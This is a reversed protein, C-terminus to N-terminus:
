YGDLHLLRAANEYLILNREEDSLSLKDFYEMEISADWMPYDTGWIVRDVGYRRIIDVAQEPTLDRLTSCCDVYLNPIGALTNVAEEYKSWGGFHAGIVTLEPHKMLFAKMQPPNSLSNRPDGCHVLVPLPNKKIANALRDARESDLSFQQFDPHLKVGKLSLEVLNKYDADIDESDPHLTGYGTFLEPHLRVEEAIFENISKVQAPVTAVSHILYHVTGLAEGERILDSTEGNLTMNDIQYFTKIGEIARAAIKHPYIHCHANINKRM